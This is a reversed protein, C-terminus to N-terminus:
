NDKSVVMFWMEGNDVKVQSPDTAIPINTENELANVRNEVDIIRKEIEVKFDSQSNKILEFRADLQEPTYDNTLKEKLIDTFDNTSLGKGEESTVKGDILKLLESKPDGNVNVYDWVEKFSNFFEPADSCIDDYKDRIDKVENKSTALLEFIRGLQETLTVGDADFVQDATTRVMLEYIVNNVKKTLITNISQFKVPEPKPPPCPPKPPRPPRKNEYAM